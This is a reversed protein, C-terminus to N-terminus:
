KKQKKNTNIKKYIEKKKKVVVYTIAGFSLLITSSFSIWFTVTQTTTGSYHIFIKGNSGNTKVLIMGNEFCSIELNEKESQDTTLTATYGKYYTLPVIYYECSEDCVFTIDTTYEKRSYEVANGNNDYINRDKFDEMVLEVPHWEVKESYNSVFENPLMSPDYFKSNSLLSFCFYVVLAVKIYNIKTKRLINIELCVAISLLITIIFNLRWPFQFFSLSSDFLKWPFIKSILFMLIVSIILFRDITKVDEKTESNKRSIFLRPFFALIVIIGVGVKSLIGLIEALSLAFDSPIKWPTSIYYTDAFYLEIFSAIFYLGIVLFVALAIGSKIWFTKDCFLKKCNFLVVLVLTVTAVILTTMHSFLMGLFAITFLWPKSYDEHLLNYIAILLVFYFLIGIAEGFAARFFIECYMYSSCTFITACLVSLGNSKLYKKSFFFMAVWFLFYLAYIFLFYCVKLPIGLFSLLVFPILFLDGYFISSIYGGGHTWNNYYKIPFQGGLIADKIGNFRSFHFNIDDAWYISRTAVTVTTCLMLFVFSLVICVILKKKEKEM